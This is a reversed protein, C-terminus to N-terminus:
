VVAHFFSVPPNSDSRGDVAEYVIRVNVMEYTEEYWNQFFSILPKENPDDVLVNEM